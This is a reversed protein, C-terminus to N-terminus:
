AQTADSVVAPAQETQRLTRMVVIGRIISIVAWVHFAFSMWDQYVTVFLVSDIGYVLLALVSFPLNKRYALWGAIAFFMVFGLGFALQLHNFNEESVAFHNALYSDLGLGAVMFYSQKALTYIINVLSLAAIWYFWSVHSRMRAEQQAQLMQQQEQATITIDDSM